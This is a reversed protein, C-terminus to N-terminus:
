LDNKAWISLPFLVKAKERVIRLRKQDNIGEYYVTMKEYDSIQRSNQLLRDYLIGADELHNRRVCIDALLGVAKNNSPEKDLIGLLLEVATDPYGHRDLLDALQVQAEGSCYLFYGSIYEFTDSEELVILYECLKLLIEELAATIRHKGDMPVKRVLGQIVQWEKKSVNFLGRCKELLAEDQLLISLLIVDLGNDGPIEELHKWEERAAEYQQDYQLAVARFDARMDEVHQGMYRNLLAHRLEYLAYLFTKLNEMINLPYVRAVHEVIEEQPIHTKIMINLYLVLAPIYEKNQQIAQFAYDYAEDYRKQKNYTVALQYNALYSGAGVETILELQSDGIEICKQFAWQADQFYEQEQFLRGMVFYLGTSNPFVNIADKLLRIGEEHKKLGQLCMGMNKLMFPVYTRNNNLSYAKKYVALAKEYEEKQFLANGFFYLNEATPNEEAEKQIIDYNRERKKKEQLVEPLYGTHHIILEADYRPFDIGLNEHVLHEHLKGQFSIGSKRKFLRPNKHYIIQNQAQYNKITISYCEKDFSLIKQMDIDQDLYEDADMVLIYDKTAHRISENRAAAFDNIWEFYFTKAGYKEAIKVTRDTSGTDVVIIEDVKGQVSQLCKELHKEENKVIMCLSVTYKNM